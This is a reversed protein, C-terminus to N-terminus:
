LMIRQSTTETAATMLQLLFANVPTPVGLMQGERVVAGCMANIETEVGRLADQLMSSRNRATKRAVEQAWVAADVFPLKIGKAKAVAEVEQAAEVMLQRAAPSELLAGNHVRLIATLPNIAVNAALKGWQLSTLDEIIETAFGAKEFLAKMKCLHPHDGRRALHTPGGGAYRLLGPEKLYAGQSTVGQTCRAAGLRQDLVELNGLGNQLTIALGDPKLVQAADQCALATKPSKTLILAVDAQGVSKLDATAQLQFQEERGDPHILHLGQQQLAQRQPPWKGVLIVDAHPSLRAGFLCGMAGIGFIAIKM